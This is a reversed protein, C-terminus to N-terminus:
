TTTQDAPVHGEVASVAGLNVAGLGQDREGTNGVGALLAICEIVDEPDLLHWRATTTKTSPGVTATFVHDPDLEESSMKKLDLFMDEDTFDDGLCLVFDLRSHKGGAEGAAAAPSGPIQSMDANHSKVLRKAIQGKNIFTPRVELNAKGRMVDVEWRKAVTAELDRRCEQAMHPGLEPDANRYHWTVACRKQEVFSGPVRDTYSQFKKVVEAKWTMDLTEALNEWAADGPHRM